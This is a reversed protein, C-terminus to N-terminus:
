AMYPRFSNWTYTSSRHERMAYMMSGGHLKIWYEYTFAATSDVSYSRGHPSHSTSLKRFEDSGTCFIASNCCIGVTFDVLVVVVVVVVVVSGELLLVLALVGLDSTRGYSSEVSLSSGTEVSSYESGGSGVVVSSTISNRDLMVSAFTVSSSSSGNAFKVTVPGSSLMGKFITMGDIWM